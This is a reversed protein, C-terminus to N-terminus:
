AIKRFIYPKNALRHSSEPDTEAEQMQKAIEGDKEPKFSYNEGDNVVVGLLEFNPSALLDLSDGITGWHFDIVLGGVQLQNTFDIVEAQLQNTFGVGVREVSANRLVVLDFKVDLFEDFVSGRILHSKEPLVANNKLANLVKADTDVYYTSCNPFVYSLSPDSGCAPYFIVPDQLDFYSQIVQYEKIFSENPNGETSEPLNDELQRDGSSFVLRLKDILRGVLSRQPEPEPYFAEDSWTM